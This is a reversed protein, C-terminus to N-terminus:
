TGMKFIRERLSGLNRKAYWDRAEYFRRPPLLLTALGVFLYKFLRYGVSPNRFETEVVRMETRLTEMRSGGCARLKSRNAENQLPHITVALCEHPVNLSALLSELLQPVQKKMEWKRRVRAQDDGDLAHLNDAHYRYYFLPEDLVYSGGAMAAMTLPSDACFTLIEPIPIVRELPKRRITLAGMLLFPWQAFAERAADPTAMNVFRACKPIRPQAENTAAHFEYYGHGVASAEPHQELASTVATLKGPAFWDDGDLFAVIDGKLERMGSNFASAQGGNKKRLLRVRPAFKSVIEPTRDTSGDDVIVIEMDSAPFDQELVSLLAQEIYPEHNYTDILISLLPKM